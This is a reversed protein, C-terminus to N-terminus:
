APYHWVILDISTRYIDTTGVREIFDRESEFLINDFVIGNSTEKPTLGAIAAVLIARAAGYSTAWADLQVRTDRTGQLSGYTRPYDGTVTQLTIAPLDSAQPRTMWYVRQSAATQGLLRARLAGQMDM